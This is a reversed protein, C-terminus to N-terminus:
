MLIYSLVVARVQAELAVGPFSVLLDSVIRTVLVRARDVQLSDGETSGEGKARKKGPAPTLLSCPCESRCAVGKGNLLEQVPQAVSM